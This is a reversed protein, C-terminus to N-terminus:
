VVYSSFMRYKCNCGNPQERVILVIPSVVEWLSAGGPAPPEPIGFVKLGVQALVSSSTSKERWNEEVSQRKEM